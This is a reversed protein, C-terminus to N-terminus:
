PRPKGKVPPHHRDLGAQGKGINGSVGWGSNPDGRGEDPAQPTGGDDGCNDCWLTPAANPVGPGSDAFAPLASTAMVTLSAGVALAFQLVKTKSLMEKM